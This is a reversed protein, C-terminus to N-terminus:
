IIFHFTLKVNKAIESRGKVFHIYPVHFERGFVYIETTSISSMESYHSFSYVLKDDSFLYNILFHLRM